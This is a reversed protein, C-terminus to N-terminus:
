QTDPVSQYEGNNNHNRGHRRGLVVALIFGVLMSVAAVGITTTHTGGGSLSHMMDSSHDAVVVQEMMIAAAAADKDEHHHDHHHKDSSAKNIRLTPLETDMFSSQTLFRTVLDLGPKPQNYPVMHGSNYVVVFTLGNWEKAWGSEYNNTMWLGRKADLWDKTGSWEMQNLALETGVMNTTMDRDGNYVLLPIGADLLEAMYPVVSLPRDNDM